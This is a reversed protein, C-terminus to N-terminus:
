KKVAQKYLMKMPVKRLGSPNEENHATFISSLRLIKRLKIKAIKEVKVLKRL